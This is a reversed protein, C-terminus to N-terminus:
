AMPPKLGQRPNGLECARGIRLAMAEERPRCVIQLSTPLGSSSLGNPVALACLGLQNVFRTLTTPTTTEDVADLPIPLSWSTPTLLADCGELAALMAATDSRMRERALIYSRAPINGSLVRGRVAPDMDSAPDEALPGHLAYAEAMMVESDRQYDRLARPLDIAVIRAGMAQLGQVSTQYASAIDPHVDRWDEGRIVALNLGGVGDDLGLSPDVSAAPDDLMARFFLAADAITRAIPGVSDLSPSLPVIAELSILGPTTKLGVLGNFGAPLRVSGGTDTGVALTALGAAVAVAAGSSSGGATHPRDPAWPNRPAGLRANTGWGGLAFEVMHTKGLVIAGAEILRTVVPATRESMRGQRTASGAACAAGKIEVLDKIAIPVGDLASLALGARHRHASAVAAARAEDHFVETYAHLSPDLAEIRSLHAEVVDVPTIRRTRYSAALGAATAFCVDAFDGAQNEAM